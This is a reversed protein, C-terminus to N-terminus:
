FPPEWGQRWLLILCHGPVLGATCFHFSLPQIKAAGWSEPTCHPPPASRCQALAGFPSTLAKRTTVLFVLTGERGRTQLNVLETIRLGPRGGFFDANGGFLPLFPLPSLFPFSLLFPPRSPLLFFAPWFSPFFSIMCMKQWPFLANGRLLRSYFAPIYM